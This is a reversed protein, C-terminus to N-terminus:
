GGQKEGDLSNKLAKLFNLTRLFRKTDKGLYNEFWSFPAALWSYNTISVLIKLVNKDTASILKQKLLQQEPKELFPLASFLFFFYDRAMGEKFSMVKIPDEEIDILKIVGVENIVMDKLFSRGHIFGKQHNNAIVQICRLILELCQPSSLKELKKSLLAGEDTTVIWNQGFAVVRACAAGSRECFKLREVEQTLLNSNNLPTTKLFNPLSWAMVLRGVKHTTSVKDLDLKKLWYSKNQWTFNIVNETKSLIHNTIYANFEKEAAFANINLLFALGFCFKIFNKILKNM